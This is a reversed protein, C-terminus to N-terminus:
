KVVKTSYSKGDATLRLVYVGSAMASPLGVRFSNTNGGLKNSALVRGDISYWTATLPGKVKNKFTANLFNGAPVSVNVLQQIGIPTEIFVVKSYTYNGDLDVQKLRYYNTATLAGFDSYIYKGNGNAAVFGLPSFSIGDSSKEVYFGKNNTEQATQWNLVVKNGVLAAEFSLLNVPLIVSNDVLFFYSFGTFNANFRHAGTGFLQTTTAAKFTNAPSINALSSANSKAIALTNPVFGDLEATQYYLGLTYAATTQNSSPNVEFVKGSRQGTGFAVWDNGAQAISAQTCGLTQNIGSVQLMLENAANYYYDTSGTQLYQTNTSAGGSAVITGPIQYGFTVTPSFSSLFVPNSACGLTSTTGDNNSYIIRSVGAVSRGLVVDAVAGATANNYCFQVVINSVGDWMFNNTFNVTNATNGTGPSPTGTTTYNGSFVETLGSAFNAPQTATTHGLSVTFGSYPQTSSKTSVLFQLSTLVSAGTLGAAQIDSAYVIFQARHRANVRFLAISSIHTITGGINGTTGSSFVTPAADNDTVSITFSPFTTGLAADGGGNNVNLNFIINEAGDAVADNYVRVTFSRPAATGTPFMLINSSTTFSGNTTFDYDLGITATGSPVLTVTAAATPAQGIGVQVNYDTFSRCVSGTSTSVEAAALSSNEFNVVASGCPLDANSNALSSRSPALLAATARTKQGNTFLNPCNTYSMINQETNQTFVNPSACVNTGTRCSFDFIGSGNVNNSIPDTDCVRDGDNLCNSNSPCQTNLSSGEFPHFINFAHGLEHPLVTNGPAFQTALMVTGDLNAPAGAFYAYGAVFQGSTGDRGDIRNVVWINYYESPNWRSIDKLAVDSLGNTNSNNVGNATYAAFASCNVRDIGNTAACGPTRQALAFQIEMNVVGGGEVPAVMGPYTGAFVQNLYTITNTIVADTPNYITGVAGGTHMVHVVVPIYTVANKKIITGNKKIYEAVSKELQEMNAAYEPSNQLLDANLKDFGCRSQAQALGTQTFGILFLALVSFHFYRM